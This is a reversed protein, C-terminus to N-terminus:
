VGQPGCAFIEWGGLVVDVPTGCDPPPTASGFPLLTSPSAQGAAVPVALPGCAYIRLYTVGPQDFTFSCPPNPPTKENACTNITANIVHAVVVGTSTSPLGTMTCITSPGDAAAVASGAGCMAVTGLVVSAIRILGATGAM